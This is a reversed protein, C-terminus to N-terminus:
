KTLVEEIESNITFSGADFNASDIQIYKGLEYDDNKVIEEVRCCNVYDGVEILDIINFSAKVIEYGLWEDRNLSKLKTIFGNQFKVYMGVKIEELDSMSMVRGYEV